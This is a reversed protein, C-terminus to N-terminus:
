QTIQIILDFKEPDNNVFNREDFYEEVPRGVLVARLTYNVDIVLNAIRKSQGALVTGEYVFGSQDLNANLYIDVDESTTNEIILTYKISEEIDSDDQCGM